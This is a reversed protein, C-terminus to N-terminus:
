DAPVELSPAATEFPTIHRGPSTHACRYIYKADFVNERSVQEESWCVVAWQRGVMGLQPVAIHVLVNGEM